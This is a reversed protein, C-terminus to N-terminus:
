KGRTERDFCEAERKRRELYRRERVNGALEIAKEYEPIAEEFRQARRLLDAKAAFLLHYRPLTGSSEIRAIERLGAEPGEAMGIAAARNLAVVPSGTWSHLENYLAAIAAWDTKGATLARDHHAAISAQIQYVGRRGFAAARDLLSLGEAIATRDWLSRDQEELTVLDGESTTRAAKRADHLLMLSLLAIAEPEDPLLSTLLRGLRIAEGALDHRLLSDGESAAYGENFILYLVALVADLRPSLRSPEPVDYPIGALRIKKKARVLRQAMTPEPCLFARAIETTTLGGLTRLTLAVRAELSLAPHCATFMLRLRDDPITEEEEAPLVIRQEQELRIADAKKEFLTERRIRDIARNRAATTLWAAPSEPIGRAPWVELARTVADQLADEARDFDGLQRILVALARGWHERFAREVADRAAATM